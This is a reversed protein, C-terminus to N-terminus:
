SRNSILEVPDIVHFCLLGMRNEVLKSDEFENKKKKM